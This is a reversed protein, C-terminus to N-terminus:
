YVLWQFKCTKFLYAFDFISAYDRWYHNLHCLITGFCKRHTKAQRLFFITVIFDYILIENLFSTQGKRIDVCPILFIELLTYPAGCRTKVSGLRVAKVLRKLPPHILPRSSYTLSIWNGFYKLHTIKLTTVRGLKLPKDKYAMTETLWCTM